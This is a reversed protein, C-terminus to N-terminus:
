NNDNASIPYNDLIKRRAERLKVDFIKNLEKNM